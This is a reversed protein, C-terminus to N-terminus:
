SHNFNLQFFTNSSFFLILSSENIDNDNDNQLDVCYDRLIFFQFNQFIDYDDNLQMFILKFKIFFNNIMFLNDDDLENKKVKKKM